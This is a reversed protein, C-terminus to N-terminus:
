DAPISAQVEPDKAVSKQEIDISRITLVTSPKDNKHQALKISAFGHEPAAWIYLARSSGARRQVLKVTNFRGARTDLVEEGLIEYAYTKIENKDIIQYEAQLDDNLLDRILLAQLSLRDGIPRTLVIDVNRNKYSSAANLKVWDFRVNSNRKGKSSGDDFSYQLTQIRGEPTWRFRSYEEVPSSRVFVALGKPKTVTSMLYEGNDDVSLQITTLGVRAGSHHVDYVATFPAPLEAAGAASLMLGATLIALLTTHLKHLHSVAPRLRTLVYIETKLM